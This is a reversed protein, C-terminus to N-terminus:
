CSWKRTNVFEHPIYHGGISFQTLVTTLGEKAPCRFIRTSISTSVYSCGAPEKCKSPHVVSCQLSILVWWRWLSFRTSRGTGSRQLRSKWRYLRSLSLAQKLLAALASHIVHGMGLLREACATHSSSPSSPRPSAAYPQGLQLFHLHAATHGLLTHGVHASTGHGLQLPGGNKRISSHVTVFITM